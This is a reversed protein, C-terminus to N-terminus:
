GHRDKDHWALRVVGFLSDLVVRVGASRTRARRPRPRRRRRRPPRRSARSSLELFRTVGRRDGDITVDGASLADALELGDWILAPLREDPMLERM